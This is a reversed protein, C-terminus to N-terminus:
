QKSGFGKERARKLVKEAMDLRGLKKLCMGFNHIHAANDPNILIITEYCKMAQLLKGVSLFGRANRELNDIRELLMSDRPNIEFAKAWKETAKLEGKKDKAAAALMNGELIMRRSNQVQEIKELVPGLIDADVGTFDLWGIPPLARSVFWEPLVEGKLESKFAPMVEELTGVYSSFVDPLSLYLSGDEAVADMAQALSVKNSLTHEVVLWSDEGPMWLHASPRFRKLKRELEKASLGAVDIPAMKPRDGGIVSNEIRYIGRVSDKVAKCTIRKEPEKSCGFLIAASLLVLSLRKVNIGPDSVRM